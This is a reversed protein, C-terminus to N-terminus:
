AAPRLAPRLDQEPAATLMGRPGNTKVTPPQTAAVTENDLSTRQDAADQSKSQTSFVMARLTLSLSSAADIMPIASSFRPQSDRSSNLSASLSSILRTAWSDRM